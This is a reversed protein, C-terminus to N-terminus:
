ILRPNDKEQYQYVGSKAITIMDANIDSASFDFARYYKNQEMWRHVIAAISYPERGESCGASWMKLQQNKKVSTSFLDPLIIKELDLQMEKGRFFETRIVVMSEGFFRDLNSESTLDAEFIHPKTMM